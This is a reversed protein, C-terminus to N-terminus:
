SLKGRWGISLIAPIWGHRGARLFFTFPLQVPRLLNLQKLGGSSSAAINGPLEASEV